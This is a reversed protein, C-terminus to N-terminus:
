PCEADSSGRWVADKNGAMKKSEMQMRRVISTAGVGTVRGRRGVSGPGEAPSLRGDDHDQSFAGDTIAAELLRFVVFSM